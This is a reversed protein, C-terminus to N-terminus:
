SRGRRMVGRGVRRQVEERQGDIMLTARLVAEASWGVRKADELM